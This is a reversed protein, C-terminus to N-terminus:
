AISNKRTTAAKASPGYDVKIDDFSKAAKYWWALKLKSRKAKPEAARM